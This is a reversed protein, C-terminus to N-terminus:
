FMFITPKSDDISSEFGICYNVELMLNDDLCQGAEDFCKEWDEESSEHEETIVQTLEANSASSETVQTSEQEVMTSTNPECVDQNIDLKETKSVIDDLNENM